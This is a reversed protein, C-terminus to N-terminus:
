FNNNEPQGQRTEDSRTFHVGVRTAVKEHMDYDGYAAM